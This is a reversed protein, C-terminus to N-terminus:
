KNFFEEVKNWNVVNFWNDVYDGRLNKYKLYYAHEWVDLPLLPKLGQELPTDQNATSVIKLKENADAVLWAWGSGFRGMAAKKFEEKFKEFSGFAEEIAKALKGSPEKGAKPAMTQWYLNHNFVGGGNNRVANRTQEPVLELKSLLEELTKGHLEPLNELAKNLNNVYAQHHKDHHFHLTEEDIFPELANHSYPLDELKFPYKQM